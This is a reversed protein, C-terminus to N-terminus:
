TDSYGKSMLDLMECFINIEAESYKKEISKITEHLKQDYIKYEEIIKENLSLYFIRKDKISQTKKVFGQRILENIKVTVASKSINLAEALYSVTCNEQFSIIDLYLLSNYTIDPYLPKSNMLRLENITMDFYFKNISDKLKM